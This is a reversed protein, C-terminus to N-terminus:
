NIEQISNLEIEVFISFLISLKELSSIEDQKEEISFLLYQQFFELPEVKNAELINEIM